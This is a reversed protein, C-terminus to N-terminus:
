RAGRRRQQRKEYCHWGTRCDLPTCKL